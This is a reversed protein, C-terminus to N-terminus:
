WMLTRFYAYKVKWLVSNSASKDLSSARPAVPPLYFPESIYWGHMVYMHYTTSMVLRRPWAHVGVEPAFATTLCSQLQYSQTAVGVSEPETINMELRIILHRKWTLSKNMDESSMVDM